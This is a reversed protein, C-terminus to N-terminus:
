PLEDSSSSSFSSLCFVVVVVVVVISGLADAKNSLETDPTPVIPFPPTLGPAGSPPCCLHSLFRSSCVTKRSPHKPHKRTSQFFITETEKKGFLAKSASFFYFQAKLSRWGGKGRQTDIMLLTDCTTPFLREALPCNGIEPSRSLPTLLPPNGGCSPSDEM